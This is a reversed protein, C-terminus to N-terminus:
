RWLGIQRGSGEGRECTAGHLGCVCEQHDAILGPCHLRASHGSSLVRPFQERLALLPQVAKQPRQIIVRQSELRNPPHSTRRKRKRQNVLRNGQKANQSGSSVIHLDLGPTSRRTQSDKQQRCKITTKMEEGNEGDDSAATETIKTLKRPAALFHDTPEVTIYYIPGVPYRRQTCPLPRPM